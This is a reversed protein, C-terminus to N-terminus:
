DNKFFYEIGDILRDWDQIPATEVLEQRIMVKEDIHHWENDHLVFENQTLWCLRNLQENKPQNTKM